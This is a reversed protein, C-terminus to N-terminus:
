SHHQTDNIPSLANCLQKAALIIRPSAREFWDSNLPIVPIKLQNGWYQKIKLIEDSNGAVVIAQPDRALVQERSVQPWPVRSGVFINEGGCLEIVQNQLSGKGSTFPPNIGFQLFVRKKPQEAYRSKLQSYEDLLTQAAQKAKEPEPSWAALQRLTDAIQEITVADVWMVKIGLSSLQNVQREANGGRWAIVLDPKLAVIRELNMGQWTSVQEIKQAQPPYNSYSSVAIPTIGAAFALETNAPSLSIVRPAANLWVPLALLLAALARTFSKAM